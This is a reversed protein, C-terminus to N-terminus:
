HAHMISLVDNGRNVGTKLDSTLFNRRSDVCACVKLNFDGWLLIRM